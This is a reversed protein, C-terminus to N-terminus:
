ARTALPNEIPHSGPYKVSSTLPENLAVFPTPHSEIDFLQGVEAVGFLATTSILFTPDPVIDNLRPPSRVAVEATKEPAILAVDPVNV